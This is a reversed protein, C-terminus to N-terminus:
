RKNAVKKWGKAPFFGGLWGGAPNAEGKEALNIEFAGARFPISDVLFSRSDYEGLVPMLFTLNMVKGNLRVMVKVPERFNCMGSARIVKAVNGDVGKVVKQADKLEDIASRTKTEFTGTPDIVKGKEDRVVYRLSSGACIQASANGPLLFITAATFLLILLTKPLADITKM